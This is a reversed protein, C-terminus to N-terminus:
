DQGAAGTEGLGSLPNPSLRSRRGGSSASQDPKNGKEIHPSETRGENRPGFVPARRRLAPSAFAADWLVIALRAQRGRTM